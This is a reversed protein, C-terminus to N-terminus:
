IYMSRWFLAYSLGWVSTRGTFFVRQRGVVKMLHSWHRQMRFQALYQPIGIKILKSSRQSKTNITSYGEITPDFDPSLSTTHNEITECVLRVLNTAASGPDVFGHKNFFQNRLSISTDQKRAM